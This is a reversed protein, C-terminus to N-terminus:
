AGYNHGRCFTQTKIKNIAESKEAAKTAKKTHIIYDKLLYEFAHVVDLTNLEYYTVEEDLGLSQAFTTKESDRAVRVTQPLRWPEGLMTDVAEKVIEYKKIQSSM